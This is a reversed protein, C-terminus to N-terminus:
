RDVGDLMWISGTVSKMTLVVHTASVDIQATAVDSSIHLAPSEFETLPFPEGAPVGRDPDFAVAWLNFYRGPRLSIFYLTKGDRAWRPKDPFVHDAAIRTFLDNHSGDASAVALENTGPQQDRSVTFSIWRGNPSLTAEWLGADPISAVVRDPQAAAVNNLSWFVLSTSGDFKAPLWTGLLGASTWHKPRFRFPRWDTLFREHGGLQRLALRGPM